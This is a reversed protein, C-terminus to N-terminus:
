QMDQGKCETLTEGQFRAWKLSSLKKVEEDILEFVCFKFFTYVVNQLICRKEEEPLITPLSVYVALSVPDLSEGDSGSETPGEGRTWKLEFVSGTEM